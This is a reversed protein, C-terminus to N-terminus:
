VEFMIIYGSPMTRSCFGILVLALAKYTQRVAPRKQLILFSFFQLGRATLKGLV